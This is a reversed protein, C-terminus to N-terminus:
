NPAIAKIFDVGLSMRSINGDSYSCYRLMQLAKDGSLTQQGKKLSISLDQSEDNYTMDTPVMYSIGGIIDIVKTLNLFLCVSIIILILVLLRGFKKVYIISATDTM